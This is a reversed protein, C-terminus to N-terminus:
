REREIRYIMEGPLHLNLRDRALLELYERDERTAKYAAQADDREAMVQRERELTALLQQQKEALQRRQPLATAVVLSGLILGFLCWLLGNCVRIARTQAKLRTM